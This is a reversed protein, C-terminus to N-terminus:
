ALYVRKTLRKTESIVICFGAARWAYSKRLQVIFITFSKVSQSSVRIAVTQTYTVTRKQGLLPGCATFSWSPLLRVV